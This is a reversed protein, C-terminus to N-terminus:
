TIATIDGCLLWTKASLQILSLLLGVVSRLKCIVAVFLASLLVNRLMKDQHHGFLTSQPKHRLLCMAVYMYLVYIALIYACQMAESVM